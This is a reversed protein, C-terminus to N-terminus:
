RHSTKRSTTLCNRCCPGSPSRGTSASCCPPAMRRRASALMMQTIIISYIATLLGLLPIAARILPDNSFLYVGVTALLANVIAAPPSGISLMAKVALGAGLALPLFSSDAPGTYTASGFLMWLVGTASFWMMILRATAVPSLGIRQRLFLLLGVAADLLVVVMVPTLATALQLMDMNGRERILLILGVILHTASLLTPAYAWMAIRKAQLNYDDDTEPPLVDFTM